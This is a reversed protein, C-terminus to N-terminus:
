WEGAYRTRYPKSTAEVWEHQLRVIQRLHLLDHNVWSALLDGASLSGAHPHSRAISWDPSELGDLWAISRRRESLFDELVRQPDKQSYKRATVWGEPDIPPWEKEPHHLTLDLRLRVYSMGLGLYIRAAGERNLDFLVNATSQTSNSSQQANAEAFTLDPFFLLGETAVRLRGAENLLLRAGVGARRGEGWAAVPAAPIVEASPSTGPATASAALAAVLASPDNM